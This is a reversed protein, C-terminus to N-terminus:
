GKSTRKRAWEGVAARSLAVYRDPDEIAYWTFGNKRAFSVHGALGLGQHLWAIPISWHGIALALCFYLAPHLLLKAILKWRPWVVRWTVAALILAPVTAMAADFLASRM